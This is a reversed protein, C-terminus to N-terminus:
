SKLHMTTHTTYGYTNPIPNMVATEKYVPKTMSAACQLNGNAFRNGINPTQVNYTTGSKNFIPTLASMNPNMKRIPAIKHLLPKLEADYDHVIEYHGGYENKVFRAQM